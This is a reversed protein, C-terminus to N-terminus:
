DKVRKNIGVILEKEKGPIQRLASIVDTRFGPFPTLARLNSGDAKVSFLQFNEDGGIDQTYVIREGKWFYDEISRVTDNTVRIAVSDTVKQTFVNMKGKYDARFSFYNGDPSIRFSSKDGNKFFSEVDILPAPM